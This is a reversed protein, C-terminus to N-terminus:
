KQLMGIAQNQTMPCYSNAPYKDLHRFIAIPPAIRCSFFEVLVSQDAQVKVKPFLNQPPKKPWQWPRKFQKFPIEAILQHQYWRYNAGMCGLERWERALLSAAMFSAPTYDGELSEMLDSLAGRPQPPLSGSGAAELALELQATTSMVDPVAWTIGQGGAPQRQLYTVLRVGSKIALGPLKKVAAAPDITSIFWRGQENPAPTDVDVFGGARFLNGLADLSAPEEASTTDDLDLKKLPHQESSPLTLQARIHQRAKQVAELSFKQLTM